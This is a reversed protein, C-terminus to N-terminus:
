TVTFRATTEYYWNAIGSRKCPDKAAQQIICCFGV